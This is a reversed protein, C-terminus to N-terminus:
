ATRNIYCNVTEGKATTTIPRLERWLTLDKESPLWGNGINELKAPHLGLLTALPSYNPIRTTEGSEELAALEQDSLAGARAAAEPSVNSMARAQRIIDGLHNALELDEDTFVRAEGFFVIVLGAREARPSAAPIGLLGRYGSDQALQRWAPEFRDDETVDPSALVRGEEVAARLCDASEPVGGALAEALVGPLGPVDVLELTGGRPFLVATWAGGLAENAAEALARGTEYLSLPQGLLAAIRFFASQQAIRRENEHLLEAVRVALGIERAVTEMLGIDEESWQGPTARHITLVGILEESGM